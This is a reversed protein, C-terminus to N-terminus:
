MEIQQIKKEFTGTFEGLNSETLDSVMKMPEASVQPLEAPVIEILPRAIMQYDKLVLESPLEDIEGLVIKVKPRAVPSSPARLKSPSLAGSDKAPSNLM